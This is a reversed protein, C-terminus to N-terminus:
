AAIGVVREKPIREMGGQKTMSKERDRKLIRQRLLLVFLRMPVGVQAASRILGKQRSCLAAVCHVGGFFLSVEDFEAASM